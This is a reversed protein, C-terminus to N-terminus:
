KKTPQVEGRRLVLRTRDKTQVVVRGKRSTGDVVTLDRMEDPALVGEYFKIFKERLEVPAGVELPTRDGGFNPNGKPPAWATPVAQLMAVASTLAKTALAIDSRAGEFLDKIGEHEEPDVPYAYHAAKILKAKGEIVKVTRLIAVAVSAARGLKPREPKANDKKARELTSGLGNGNAALPNAPPPPTPITDNKKNKTTTNV